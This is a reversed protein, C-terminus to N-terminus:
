VKIPIRYYPWRFKEGTTKPTGM